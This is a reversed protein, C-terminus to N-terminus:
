SRKTAPYRELFGSRWSLIIIILGLLGYVLHLVNAGRILLMQVILWGCLIIGSWISLALRGPQDKVLSVTASINMGGVVFM